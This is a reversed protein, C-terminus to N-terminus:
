CGQEPGIDADLDDCDLGADAHEDTYPGPQWWAPWGDADLDWSDAFLGGYIGMDGPSDDPDTLAPDGADLVPSSSGLHLDWTLPDSDGVDMFGPDVDPELEPCLGFTTSDCDDPDNGGVVSHSVSATATDLYLGGGLGDSHNSRVVSSALALSAFAVFVGGAEESATNALMVTNDAFVSAQNKIYIAGGGRAENGLLATNALLVHGEDYAYIAGGHAGARNGVMLVNVLAASGMTVRLAGGDDVADNDAVVANNLDLTGRVVM